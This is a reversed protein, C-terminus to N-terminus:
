LNKKLPPFTQSRSSLISLKVVREKTNIIDIIEYELSKILFLLSLFFYCLPFCVSLLRNILPAHFAKHSYMKSSRVLNRLIHPYYSAVTGAGTLTSSYLGYPRVRLPLCHLSNIFMLHYRSIILSEDKQLVPTKQQISLTGIGKSPKSLDLLVFPFQSLSKHAVSILSLFDKSAM